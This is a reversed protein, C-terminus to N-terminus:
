KVTFKNKISSAEKALRDAQNNWSDARNQHGKVKELTFTDGLRMKLEALEKWLEIHKQNKFSTYIRKSLNNYGDVVYKSDSYIASNLHNHRSLWKIGEIIARLEMENSDGSSFRPSIIHEVVQDYPDLVIVSYGSSGNKRTSGDCYLFYSNM